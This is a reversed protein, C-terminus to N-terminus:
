YNKVIEFWYNLYGKLYVSCIILIIVFNVKLKKFKIKMEIVIDWINRMMVIEDNYLYLSFFMFLVFEWYEIGFIDKM